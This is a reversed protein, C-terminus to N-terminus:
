DEIEQAIDILKQIHGLDNTNHIAFFSYRSNKFISVVLNHSFKEMKDAISDLEGRFSKPIRVLVSNGKISFHKPLLSTSNPM